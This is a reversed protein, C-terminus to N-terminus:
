RLCETSYGSSQEKYLSHVGVVGVTVLDLYRLMRSINRKRLHRKRLHGRRPLRRRIYRKRLHGRRPLRRTLRSGRLLYYSQLLRAKRRIDPSYRVQRVEASL